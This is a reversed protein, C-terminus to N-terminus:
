EGKQFTVNEDAVIAESNVNVSPNEPIESGDEPPNVLLDDATNGEPKDERSVVLGIDHLRRRVQNEQTEFITAIEGVALSKEIYLYALCLPNNEDVIYRPLDDTLANLATRPGGCDRENGEAFLSGADIGATQAGAQLAERWDRVILHDGIAPTLEEVADDYGNVAPSTFLREILEAWKPSSLEEPSDPYDSYSVAALPEGVEYGLQEWELLEDIESNRDGVEGDRERANEVTEGDYIM